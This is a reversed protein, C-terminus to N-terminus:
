SKVSEQTRNTDEGYHPELYYTIVQRFGPADPMMLMKRHVNAVNITCIIKIKGM